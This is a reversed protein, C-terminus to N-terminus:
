IKKWKWGDTSESKNQCSFIQYGERWGTLHTCGSPSKALLEINSPPTEEFVTKWRDQEQQWKAGQCFSYLRSKDKEETRFQKDEVFRQAAEELTEQKEKYGDKLRMYNQARQKAQKQKSMTEWDNSMEQIEIDDLKNLEKIDLQKAEEKPIIIKYKYTIANEGEIFAKKSYFEDKEVEVRECSPNKVFWELFEDEIAQVSDKILDQDTTLIIKKCNPTLTHEDKEYKIIHGFYYCWDGEKIVEDNTIYINQTGEMLYPKSKYCLDKEWNIILRSPKDTPL